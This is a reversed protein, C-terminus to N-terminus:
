LTYKSVANYRKNDLIKKCYEYYKQDRAKIKSMFERFTEMDNCIMVEAVKGMCKDFNLDMPTITYGGGKCCKEECTICVIQGDKVLVTVEYLNDSASFLKEM